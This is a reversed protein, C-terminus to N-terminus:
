QACAEEGQNRPSVMLMDHMQGDLIIASGALIVGGIHEPLMVRRLAESVARMPAGNSWHFAM